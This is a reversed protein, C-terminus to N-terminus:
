SFTTSLFSVTMLIVRPSSGGSVSTGVIAGVVVVVVVVVVVDM